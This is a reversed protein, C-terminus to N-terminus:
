IMNTPNTIVVKWLELDLGLYDNYFLYILLAIYVRFVPEYCLGICVGWIIIGFWSIFNWILNLTFVFFSTIINAFM